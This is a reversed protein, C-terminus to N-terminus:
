EIDVWLESYSYFDGSSLKLKFHEGSQLDFSVKIDESGSFRTFEGRPKVGFGTTPGGPKIGGYVRSKSPTGNVCSVDFQNSITTNSNNRLFIVTIKYSDAKPLTTRYQNGGKARLTDGERASLATQPYDSPNIISSLLNGEADYVEYFVATNINDFVYAIKEAQTMEQVDSNTIITDSLEGPNDAIHFQLVSLDFGPDQKYFSDVTFLPLLNDSYREKIKRWMVRHFLSGNAITSTYAYVDLPDVIKESAVDFDVQWAMNEKTQNFDSKSFSREDVTEYTVEVEEDRTLDPRIIKEVKVNITKAVSDYGMTARYNSNLGIPSDERDDFGTIKTKILKYM